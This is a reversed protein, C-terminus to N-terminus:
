APGRQLSFPYVGTVSYLRGALWKESFHQWSEGVHDNRGASQGELHTAVLRPDYAVVQGSERARLCFDLDEYANQYGEDMGELHTWTTRRIFASAFTVALPYLGLMAQPHTAPAGRWLNYPNGQQDLGIGAHQILGNPYLLRMGVVADNEFNLVPAVAPIISETLVVDDNLLWLWDGTAERAGANVAQAFTAGALIVSKHEGELIGVKGTHVIITEIVPERALGVVLGRLLDLRDKTPIIVSVRPLSM